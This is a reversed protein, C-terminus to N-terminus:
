NPKKVTSDFKDSVVLKKGTRKSEIILKDIARKTGKLVKERIIEYEKEM